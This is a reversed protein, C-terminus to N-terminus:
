RLGACFEQIRRMAERLEEMSTAYSIRIYPSM